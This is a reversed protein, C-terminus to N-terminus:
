IHIGKKRKYNADKEPTNKALFKLYPNINKKNWIHYMCFFDWEHTNGYYIIHNQATFLVKLLKNRKIAFYVVRIQVNCDLSYVNHTINPWFEQEWRKNQKYNLSYASVWIKLIWQFLFVLMTKNTNSLKRYGQQIQCFVSRCFYMLHVKIVNLKRNM